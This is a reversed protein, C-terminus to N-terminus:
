SPDDPDGVTALPIQISPPAVPVVPVPAAVPVPWGWLPGFVRWCGCGWLPGFVRCCGCGWVWPPFHSLADGVAAMKSEWIKTAADPAVSV